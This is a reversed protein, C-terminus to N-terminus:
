RDFLRAIDEDPESISCSGISFPYESKIERLRSLPVEFGRWRVGDEFSFDSSSTTELCEEIQTVDIASGHARGIALAVSLNLFGLRNGYREAEIVPHHLGATAKLGLNARTVEKVIRALKSNDVATPGSGRVKLLMRSTRKSRNMEGLLTTLMQLDSDWGALSFDPEICINLKQDELTQQLETLDDRLRDSWSSANGEIKVEYSGVRVGSEGTGANIERITRMEHRNRDGPGEACKFPAGLSAVEFPHGPVFGSAKLLPSELKVLLDCVVVINAAVMAPRRLSRPFGASEILAKEIELAAPPFMGAYDFLRELLLELAEGKM